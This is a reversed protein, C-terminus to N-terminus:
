PKYSYKYVKGKIAVLKNRKFKKGHNIVHLYSKAINNEHHLTEVTINNIIMSSNRDSIINYVKCKGIAVRKVTINNILKGAKIWTKNLLIRHSYTIYTDQIPKQHGLANANICILDDTNTIEVLARVSGGGLLRHTNKILEIPILGSTTLM